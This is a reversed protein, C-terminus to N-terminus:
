TFTAMAMAMAMAPAGSVFLSGGPGGPGVALVSVCLCVPEFVGVLVGVCLCGSVAM